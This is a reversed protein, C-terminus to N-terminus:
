GDGRGYNGWSKVVSRVRVGNAFEPHMRSGGGVKCECYPQVIHMCEHRVQEATHRGATRSVLIQYSALRSEEAYYCAYRGRVQVGFAAELEPMVRLAIAALEPEGDCVFHDARDECAAFFAVACVLALLGVFWALLRWADKKDASM